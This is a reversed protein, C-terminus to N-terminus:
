RGIFYFAIISILFLAFIVIKFIKKVVKLKEFKIEEDSFKEDVKFNNIFNNTEEPSVFLTSFSLEKIMGNTDSYKIVINYDKVLHLFSYDNYKSIYICKIKDYPFFVKQFGFSITIGEKSCVFKFANFVTVILCIGFLFLLTIFFTIIDNYMTSLLLAIVIISTIIIIYKNEKIIKKPNSILAANESNIGIIENFRRNKHLLFVDKFKLKDKIKTKNKLKIKDKENYNNEM